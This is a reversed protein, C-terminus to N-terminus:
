AIPGQSCNRAHSPHQCSFFVARVDFESGKRAGKATTKHNMFIWPTCGQNERALSGKLHRTSLVIWDICLIQGGPFHCSRSNDTLSVKTFDGTFFGKAMGTFVTLPILLLLRYDKLLKLTVFFLQYTGQNRIKRSAPINDSLFVMILIAIM